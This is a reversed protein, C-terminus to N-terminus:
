AVKSGGKVQVVEVHLGERKLADLLGSDAIMVKVLRAITFRLNYISAEQGLAAGAVIVHAEKAAEVIRQHLGTKKLSNGSAHHESMQDRIKELYPVVPPLPLPELEVRGPKPEVASIDGEEATLVPRAPAEPTTSM